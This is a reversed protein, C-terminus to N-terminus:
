RPQDRGQTSPVLIKGHPVGRILPLQTKPVNKHM